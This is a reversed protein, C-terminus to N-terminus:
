IKTLNNSYKEKCSQEQVVNSNNLCAKAESSKTDCAKRESAKAKFCKAKEILQKIKFNVLNIVNMSNPNLM